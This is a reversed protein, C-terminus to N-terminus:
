FNANLRSALYTKCNIMIERRSHIAKELDVSQYTEVVPEMYEKFLQMQEPTYDSGRMEGRTMNFKIQGDYIQTTLDIVKPSWLFKFEGIPFIQHRSGYLASSGPSGTCFVAQSRPRWGFKAEFVDDVVNSIKLETDLPKRDQRVKKIISRIEQQKYIIDIKESEGSMNIGRWIATGMINEITNLEAILPKCKEKLFQELEHPSSESIFQKFTKM